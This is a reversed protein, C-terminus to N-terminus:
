LTPKTGNSLFLTLAWSLPSVPPAQGSSQEASLQHIVERREGKGTLEVQHEEEASMFALERAGEAHRVNLFMKADATQTNSGQAITAM